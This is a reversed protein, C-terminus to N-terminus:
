SIEGPFSFHKEAEDNVLNTKREKGGSTVETKKRHASLCLLISFRQLWDYARLHSGRSEEGLMQKGTAFVRKNTFIYQFGSSGEEWDSGWEVQM